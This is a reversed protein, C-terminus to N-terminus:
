FSGSAGGGGFSGGGFGGFGGGSFGGFSSSGGFMGSSSHFFSSDDDDDDNDDDEKDDDSDDSGEFYKAVKHGFSDDEYDEGLAVAASTDPNSITLGLTKIYKLDGPALQDADINLMLKGSKESAVVEQTQNNLVISDGLKVDSALPHVTDIIKYEM